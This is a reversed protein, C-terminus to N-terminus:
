GHRFVRNQRVFGIERGASPPGSPTIRCFSALEAAYRGLDPAIAVGHQRKFGSVYGVLAGSDADMVEVASGRSLYVRRSASDVTIYDYYESTSGPAAGFMYMKLLHYGSDAPRAAILGGVLLVVVFLACGVAFVRLGSLKGSLKM